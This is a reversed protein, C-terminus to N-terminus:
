ADPSRLILCSIKGSYRDRLITQPHSRAEVHLWFKSLIRDRQASLDTRTAYWLSTM